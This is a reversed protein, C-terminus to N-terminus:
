TALRPSVETSVRDLEAILADLAAQVNKEENQTRSVMGGVSSLGTSTLDNALYRRLDKLESQFAPLTQRVADGRETLAAFSAQVEGMRQKARDRLEQNQLANVEAQWNKIYDDRKARLDVARDRARNARADVADVAGSFKRFQPRLDAAPNNVLDNLATVAASVDTKLAAVETRVDALRRSAIEARDYGKKPTACGGAVCTFAALTAMVTATSRWAGKFWQGAGLSM